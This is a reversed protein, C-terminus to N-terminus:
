PRVAEPGQARSKRGSPRNEPPLQAERPLPQRSSPVDLVTLPPRPRREEEAPRAAQLQESLRNLLEARAAPELAPYQRLGAAVTELLAADLQQSQAEKEWSPLIKDLGGVVARNDYGREAELRFFKQLKDIPSPM